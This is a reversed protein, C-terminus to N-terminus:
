PAVSSRVPMPRAEKTRTVTASCRAVGHCVREVARWQDLVARASRLAGSRVVSSLKPREPSTRSARHAAAQGGRIPLMDLAYLLVVMLLLSKPPPLVRIALRSPVVTVAPTAAAVARVAQPASVVPELLACFETLM